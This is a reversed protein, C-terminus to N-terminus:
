TAFHNSVEPYRPYLHLPVRNKCRKKETLIIEFRVSICPQSLMPWAEPLSKWSSNARPWRLCLLLSLFPVPLLDGRVGLIQSVHLESSTMARENVGEWGRGVSVVKRLMNVQLNQHGMVTVHHLTYFPSLSCPQESHGPIRSSSNFDSSCLLFLLLFSPNRMTNWTSSRIFPSYTAEFLGYIFEWQLTPLASIVTKQGCESHLWRTASIHGAAPSM